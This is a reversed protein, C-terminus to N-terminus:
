SYVREIMRRGSAEAKLAALIPQRKEADHSRATTPLRPSICYLRVNDSVSEKGIRNEIPSEM